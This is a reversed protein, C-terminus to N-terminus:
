WRRYVGRQKKVADIVVAIVIIAAFVILFLFVYKELGALGWPDNIITVTDFTTSISTDTASAVITTMRYRTGRPADVAVQFGLFLTAEADPRLRVTFLYYPEMRSQNQGIAAVWGSPLGTINFEVEDELDGVNAVKFRHFVVDGPEVVETPNVARAVLGGRLPTRAIAIDDVWWGGEDAIVNSSASLEIVVSSGAPNVYASLNAYILQWDSQLGQFGQAPGLSRWNGDISVNVFATDTEVSGNLETRGRFDFRHWLYVYLLGGSVNAPGYTLTHFEPPCLPPICLLSAEVRGFRWAHEPSHSVSANADQVIEWRAPDNSGGNRVWGRNGAEVDDFFVFTGANVHAFMFNNEPIEDLALAVSAELIYKGEAALPVTWTRNETAGRVLSAVSLPACCVASAPAYMERYVTLNVAIDTQTRAGRNAVTVTVSASGGTPVAWPHRVGLIVLDDDVEHSLDATMAAGSPSINRVKWGTRQNAYSNSNPDSDPGFGDVTDEWPDTSQTPRDDGDAEELDVLRHADDANGPVSEDIHWVLIGSGPLGRDFGVPQRNEVLFYEEAGNSRIPLKYPVPIGNTPTRSGMQDLVQDFLPSSVPVPQVWGLSVKSWASFHAPMTGRAQGTLANWSGTGMVDWKGVGDSTGDTDYLDPLGFDHGLEHVYVGVPSSESVMIYGYIQVGDARLPQNGPQGPEADVVSWRHSWILDSNTGSEEQAGGAHVVILHDVVGDGVGNENDFDSFSWTRSSDAEALRVAEVVLRYIPGNRDDYSGSPSDAGYESIPYASSYWPQVTSTMTLLGYSSESYFNRASAAGPAGDNMLQNIQNSSVSEPEDTFRIPLVLVSQPGTATPSQSTGRTRPPTGTWQPDQAFPARPYVDPNPLMMHPGYAPGPEPSAVPAPDMRVALFSGVASATMAATLLIALVRRM